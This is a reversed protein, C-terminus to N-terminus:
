VEGMIFKEIREALFMNLDYFLLFDRVLFQLVFDLTTWHPMSNYYNIKMRLHMKLLVIATLKSGLELLDEEQSNSKLVVFFM